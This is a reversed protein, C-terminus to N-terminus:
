FNQVFLTKSESSYLLGQGLMSREEGKKKRKEIEFKGM